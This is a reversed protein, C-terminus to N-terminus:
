LIGIGGGLWWMSFIWVGIGMALGTAVGWAYAIAYDM